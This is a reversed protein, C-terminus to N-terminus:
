EGKIPGIKIGTWSTRRGKRGQKQAETRETTTNFDRHLEEIVSTKCGSDREKEGEKRTTEDTGQLLSLSM